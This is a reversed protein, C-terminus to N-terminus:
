DEDGISNMIAALKEQKETEADIRRKQNERNIKHLDSFNPTARGLKAAMVHVEKRLKQSIGRLREIEEEIECLGEDHEKMSKHIDAVEEQTLNGDMSEFSAEIEKDEEKEDEEKEQNQEEDSRGEKMSETVRVFEPIAENVDARKVTEYGAESLFVNLPDVAPLNQGTWHDDNAMDLKLAADLIPNESM